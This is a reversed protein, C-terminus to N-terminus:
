GLGGVRRLMAVGGLAVLGLVSAKAPPLRVTAALGSATPPVMPPGPAADAGGPTPCGCIRLARLLEPLLTRMGYALYSVRGEPVRRGAM